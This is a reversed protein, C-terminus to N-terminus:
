QQAEARQVQVSWPFWRSYSWAFLKDTIVGLIGIVLVAVFIRETLLFRQSRVILYGLGSTAGLIEAFILTAWALGFNIRLSDWIEPMAAPITFHVLRQWPTTGISHAIDYYADPIYAVADAIMLVLQFFVGLAIIMMKGWEGSGFWLIMLPIVAPMPVFRVFSIPPEVVANFIRSRGMLIGCPIAIISALAFGTCIRLTSFSLDQWFEASQLMQWGIKITDMPAPLFFREIRGTTTAFWWGLLALAPVLWAAYRRYRVMRLRAAAIEGPHRVIQTQMRSRRQADEKTLAPKTAMLEALETYQFKWRIM